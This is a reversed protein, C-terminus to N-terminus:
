NVTIEITNGNVSLHYIGNFISIHGYYTVLPNGHATQRRVPVFATGFEDALNLEEGHTNLVTVFYEDTNKYRHIIITIGDAFRQFVQKTDIGLGVKWGGSDKPVILYTDKGSKHNIVMDCRMGDVVVKEGTNDFLYYEFSAVPSDFSVFANELPLFATAICLVVSLVAVVVRMPRKARINSKNVIILLILFCVSAILLRITGFM